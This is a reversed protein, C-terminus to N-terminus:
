MWTEKKEWRTRDDNHGRLQRQKVRVRCREGDKVGEAKWIREKWQKQEM